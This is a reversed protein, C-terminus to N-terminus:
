MYSQIKNTKLAMLIYIRILRAEAEANISQEDDEQLVLTFKGKGQISFQVVSNERNM